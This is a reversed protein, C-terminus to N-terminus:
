LASFFTPMATGWNKFQLRMKEPCSNEQWFQKYLKALEEIDEITMKRVLM